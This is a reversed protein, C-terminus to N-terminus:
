RVLNRVQEPSFPGGHGPYIIKPNMALIRQLNELVAGTDEAFVPLRPRTAPIMGMVLDGAICEGTSMLVSLSGGTHGPTPIITGEVGFEDLPCPAGVTIDPVVALDPSLSERGIMLSMLRGLLTVPVPPRSMGKKLEEADRTHVLVPAGTASKLFAASGSHDLHAHTIIILSVDGPRVGNKELVSLIAPGSGPVGTDVLIARNGRILYANVHGLPIPTVVPVPHLMVSGTM